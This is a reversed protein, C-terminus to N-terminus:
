LAPFVTAVPCWTWQYPAPVPPALHWIFNLAVYDIVLLVALPNDFLAALIGLRCSGCKSQEIADLM